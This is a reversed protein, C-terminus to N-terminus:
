AVTRMKDKYKKSREKNDIFNVVLKILDKLHAVNMDTFRRLYHSEDNRLWSAEEATERIDKNKIRKIAKGLFEEEIKKKNEPELCILYDKVLFELAKGYGSGCIKKLGKKEAMYSQNYIPVFEKSIKIISKPFKHLKIFTPLGTKDLFFTEDRSHASKTYYAIFSHRCKEYECKFFVELYGPGGYSINQRYAKLIEPWNRVGCIPCRDPRENIECSGHTKNYTIYEVKEM